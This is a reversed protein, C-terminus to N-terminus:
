VDRRGRGGLAVARGPIREPTGLLSSIGGAADGGAAEIARLAWPLIRPLMPASEACIQKEFCIRWGFGGVAAPM